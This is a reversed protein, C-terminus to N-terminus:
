LNRIVTIARFFIIIGVFNNRIKADKEIKKSRQTSRVLTLKAFCESSNINGAAGRSM